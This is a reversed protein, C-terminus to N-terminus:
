PLPIFEKDDGPIPPFRLSGARPGSMWETKAEEIRDKRSSVFNWEIFRPGLSKGGLIMVHADEIATVLLDGDVALMTYAEAEEGEVHVKGEVVYVSLERDEASLRLSQTAKLRVEAYIMDSLVPVPSQAGFGTGLLLTGQVGDLEFKPLTSAPHHSFSPAREEVEDPLAVWLQIGNVRHTVNRLREPTRESHVIGRGSTMWNIAGPEILQDSGLSDRHEIAGEFLYTVTALNIHPHPRVDIASGPKFLAPGMHDFFIFPGVMKRTVHPLVRRVRLAGLDRERGQIVDM